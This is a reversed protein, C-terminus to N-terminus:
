YSARLTSQEPRERRVEDIAQRLDQLYEAHVDAHLMSMMRHIAKPKQLLAPLWGRPQMKEAVRFIDFADSGFAVISLPPDGVLSLGEISEISHKYDDVFALLRRAIELYGDRGLHQMVAWAAAVGGAPRTGVLTTTAYRGNPWGAFEFPHCAALDASRYFVTSAPKPCFGFKHLDASLSRVGPVAFDFEPVPRGLLRAFPALYGGVCADVHLWLDRRQALEGLAAIPDVVGYPFCPASGVLLITAPDILAEMAAVDARMDPGVPARRVELDMLDAAKDFAPHTSECAVINPPHATRARTKRSWNQYTQITIIISETGGTTMFGAAEDPAHFLELAMEVVEREMRQVSPFARRAGLANESFYEMFADKGFRTLGDNAGFVYLPVRGSEWDADDSKFRRLDQLVDEQLRGADPLKIRMCRSRTPSASRDGAGRTAGHGITADGEAGARYPTQVAADIRRNSDRSDSRHDVLPITHRAIAGHFVLRAPDQPCRQLLGRCRGHHRPDGSLGRLAQEDTGDRLRLHHETCAQQRLAFASRRESPRGTECNSACIAAM